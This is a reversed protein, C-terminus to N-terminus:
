FTSKLDIFIHNNAVILDKKLDPIFLNIYFSTGLIFAVSVKLVLCSMKKSNYLIHASAFLVKVITCLM